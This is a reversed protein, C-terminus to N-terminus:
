FPQPQSQGPELAELLKAAKKVDRPKVWLIAGYRGLGTSVADVATINIKAEALKGVIDAMAGVRDDGQVLFGTKPGVLRLKAKKAAAVRHNGDMLFPGHVTVPPLQEPTVYKFNQAYDQVRELDYPDARVTSLKLRFVPLELLQEEIEQRSLKRSYQWELEGLLYHDTQCDPDRERLPM